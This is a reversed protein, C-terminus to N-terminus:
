QITVVTSEYKLRVRYYVGYDGQKADISISTAGRGKYPELEKFAKSRTTVEAIVIGRSVIRLRGDEEKIYGRDLYANNEDLEAKVMKDTLNVSVIEEESEIKPEQAAEYRPEEAKKKNFIGM